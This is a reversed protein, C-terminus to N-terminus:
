HSSNLRTSKRDTQRSVASAVSVAGQLEYFGQETARAGPGLAGAGLGAFLPITIQSLDTAANINSDWGISADAFGSIDTGGGAIQKDFNRVLRDFRQRVPDPLSPDQVVTDFQARATDILDSSCVDSSWDSIRMEYATKQKFFFVCCM